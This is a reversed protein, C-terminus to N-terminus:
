KNSPARRLLELFDDKKKIADKEKVPELFEPQAQAKSNANFLTLVGNLAKKKLKKEENTDWLSPDLHKSNMMQKKVVRIKQENKTKQAQERKLKDIKGPIKSRCLIPCVGNPVPANLLKAFQEGFSRDEPAEDYEDSSTLLEEETNNSPEESSDSDSQNQNDSM